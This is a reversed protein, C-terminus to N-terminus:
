SQLRAWRPPHCPATLYMLDLHSIYIYYINYINVLYQRANIQQQIELEQLKMLIRLSTKVQNLCDTGTFCDHRINMFYIKIYLVILSLFARIVSLITHCINHDTNIHRCFYLRKIKLYLIEVLSAKFCNTECSVVAQWHCHTNCFLHSISIIRM